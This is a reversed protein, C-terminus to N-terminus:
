FPSARKLTRLHDRIFFEVRRVEAAARVAVARAPALTEGKSSREMEAYLNALGLAAVCRAEGKANRVAVTFRAPDGSNLADEVEALSTRVTVLSEGLVQAITEVQNSGLIEELLRINIVPAMAWGTAAPFPGPIAPAVNSSLWKALMNVLADATVPKSLFDDMGAMVSENIDEQSDNATLAIVPIRQGSPEQRRLMRTFEYGDMEPMSCDCLVLDFQAEQLVELAKIGDPALTCIMNLAKLQGQIVTQNVLRDELVLIRKGALGLETSTKKPMQASM